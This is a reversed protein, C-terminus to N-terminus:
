IFSLYSGDIYFHNHNPIGIGSSVQNFEFQDDSLAYKVHDIDLDVLVPSFFKDLNCRSIFEQYWDDTQFDTFGFKNKYQAKWIYNSKGVLYFNRNLLIISKALDEPTLHLFINGLVDGSLIEEIFSISKKETTSKSESTYLEHAKLYLITSEKVKGEKELQSSEVLLNKIRLYKENLKYDMIPSPLADMRKFIMETRIVYKADYVIAGAHYLDHNFIAIGGTQPQILTLKKFRQIVEEHQQKKKKSVQDELRKLLVTPATSCDLYILVTFISQENDNKVFKADQHPKFFSRNDYKNFRFCENLGVPVWVGDNNFGYPKVGKFDDPKFYLRNV